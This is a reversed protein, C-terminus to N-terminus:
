SGDAVNGLFHHANELQEVLEERPMGAKEAIFSLDYKKVDASNQGPVWEVERGLKAYRIRSYKELGWGRALNYLWLVFPINILGLTQHWPPFRKWLAEPRKFGTVLAMAKQCREDVAAITERSELYGLADVHTSFDSPRAAGISLTHIESRQLCYADNFVIPEFPECLERFLQPPDQLMGGKDTPSIIFVGLDRQAAEELVRNNVQYIYYWHLNVYDFGGYKECRIAELIVDVPGHGSFGIARAKGEKQIQRAAALCGGERCVQWLVRYDNIGHIALLDVHDAGLRALSLEVDQVFKDPDASPLVKTQLLYSERPIDRLAKGLQQESTGYAHATEFHNIGYELATRVIDDFNRQNGSPIEGDPVTQWSHMSRMFGASLVPVEFGTRGFSRYIM